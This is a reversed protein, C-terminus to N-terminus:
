SQTGQYIPFTGFYSNNHYYTLNGTDIHLKISTYVTGHPLICTYYIIDGDPLTELETYTFINSFSKMYM